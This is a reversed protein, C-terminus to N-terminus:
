LYTANIQCGTFNMHIYLIYIYTYLIHIYIYIYIHIYDAFQPQTLHLVRRRECAKASQFTAFLYRRLWTNLEDHDLFWEFLLQEM